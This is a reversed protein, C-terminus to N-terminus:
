IFVLAGRIEAARKADERAKAVAQEEKSIGVEDLIM